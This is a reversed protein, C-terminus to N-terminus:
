SSTGSVVSVVVDERVTVTLLNDIEEDGKGDGPEGKRGGGIRDGCSYAKIDDVDLRRDVSELIFAPFLGPM